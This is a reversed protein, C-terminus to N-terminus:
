KMNNKLNNLMKSLYSVNKFRSYPRVKITDGTKSNKAQLGGGSRSAEYKEFDGRLYSSIGSIGKEIGAVWSRGEEFPLPTLEEIDSKDAVFVNFDFLLEKGSKRTKYKFGEIYISSNLIRRLDEIPEANKDFGIFSFLNGYGGLTGSINDSDPGNEIEQTVPHHDFEDFFDSKVEEFRENALDSAAEIVEENVEVGETLEKELQDFDIIINM